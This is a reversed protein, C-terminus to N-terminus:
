INKVPINIYIDSIYPLLKFIVGLVCLDDFGNVSEAISQPHLTMRLFHGNVRRNMTDKVTIVARVTVTKM